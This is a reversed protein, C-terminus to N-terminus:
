ERSQLKLQAGEAQEPARARLQKKCPRLLGMAVLTVARLCASIHHTEEQGQACM